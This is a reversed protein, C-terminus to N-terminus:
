ITFLSSQSNNRKIKNNIKNKSKRLLYQYHYQNIETNSVLKSLRNNSDQKQGLHLENIADGQDFLITLMADQLSSSSNSIFLLNYNTHNFLNQLHHNNNLSLIQFISKKKYSIEIKFHYKQKTLQWDMKQNLGLEEPDKIDKLDLDNKMM